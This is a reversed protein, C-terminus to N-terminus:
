MLPKNFLIHQCTKSIPLESEHLTDKDPKIYISKNDKKKKNTKTKMLSLTFGYFHSVLFLEIIAGSFLIHSM